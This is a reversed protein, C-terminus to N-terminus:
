NKDQKTTMYSNISYELKISEIEDESKRKKLNHATKCKDHQKNCDCGGKDKRIRLDKHCKSCKYELPIENLENM